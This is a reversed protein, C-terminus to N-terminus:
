ISAFFKKVDSKNLNSLGDFHEKSWVLDPYGLVFVALHEESPYYHKCEWKRPVNADIVEFFLSPIWFPDSNVVVLYSLVDILAVGHVEYEEGYVLSKYIFLTERRQLLSAPLLEEFKANLVFLVKM